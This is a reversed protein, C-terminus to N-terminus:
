RRAAPDLTAIVPAHDSLRNEPNAYEDWTGVEVSKPDRSIWANPAYIFDIHHGADERYSSWHTPAEALGKQETLDRAAHYTSLLGHEALLKITHRHYKKNDTTGDWYCGNNFDGAVIANGSKLQDRYREIATNVPRYVWENHAWVALLFFPLAGGVVTVPLTWRDLRETRQRSTENPSGAPPAWTDVGIDLAFENFAYVGLGATLDDGCWVSGTANIVALKENSMRRSESLVLLDPEHREVVYQIRDIRSKASNWAVVKM